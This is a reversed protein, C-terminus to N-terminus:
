FLSIYRINEQNLEKNKFQLQTVESNIYLPALSNVSNVTGLTSVEQEAESNRGELNDGLEVCSNM